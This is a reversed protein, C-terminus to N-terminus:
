LLNTPWQEDKPDSTCDRTRCDSFHKSQLLLHRVEVGQNDSALASSINNYIVYM